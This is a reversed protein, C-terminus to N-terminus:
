RENCVRNLYRLKIYGSNLLALTYTTTSETEELGFLFRSRLFWYCTRKVSSWHRGTLESAEIVTTIQRNSDLMAWLKSNVPFNLNLLEVIMM